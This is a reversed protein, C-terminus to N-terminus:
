QLNKRLREDCEGCIVLEERAREEGHERQKAEFIMKFQPTLEKFVEGDIVEHACLVCRRVPKEQEEEQEM